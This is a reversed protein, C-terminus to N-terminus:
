TKRVNRKHIVFYWIVALVIMGLGLRRIYPVVHETNGLFLKAIWVLVFGYVLSGLMNYLLFEWKPMHSIGAIFPLM